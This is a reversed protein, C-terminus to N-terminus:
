SNVLKYGYGARFRDSEVFLIWLQSALGWVAHEKAEAKAFTPETINTLHIVLTQLGSSKLKISHIHPKRVDIVEFPLQTVVSAKQCNEAFKKLKRICAEKEELMRCADADLEEKNCCKCISDQDMFMLPWDVTVTLINGCAHRLINGSNGPCCGSQLVFEVAAVENISFDLKQLWGAEAKDKKWVLTKVLKSEGNAM